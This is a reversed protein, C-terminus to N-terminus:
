ISLRRIRWGHVNEIPSQKLIELYEFTRLLEDVERKSLEKRVENLAKNLPINEFYMDVVKELAKNLNSM